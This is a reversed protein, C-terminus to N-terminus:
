SRVKIEGIFKQIRILTRDNSIPKTNPIPSKGISGKCQESKWFILVEFELQLNRIPSQEKDLEAEFPQIERMGVGIQAGDM